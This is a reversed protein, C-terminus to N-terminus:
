PSVNSPTVMDLLAIAECVKFMISIHGRVEEILNAVAQDGTGHLYKSVCQRVLTFKIMLIVEQHSVNIQSLNARVRKRLFARCERQNRKM